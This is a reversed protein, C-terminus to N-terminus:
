CWWLCPQLFTTRAQVSKKKEGSLEDGSLSAREPPQKCQVSLGRIHGGGRVGQIKWLTVSEFCLLASKPEGKEDFEAKQEASLSFTEPAMTAAYCRGSASASTAPPHFNPARLPTPAPFSDSRFSLKPQPAFSSSQLQPGVLNNWSRERAHVNKQRALSSVVVRTAGCCSLSTM